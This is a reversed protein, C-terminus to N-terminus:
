RKFERFMALDAHSGEWNTITEDWYAYLKRFEAENRVNHESWLRYVLMPVSFGFVQSIQKRDHPRLFLSPRDNVAEFTSVIKRRFLLIRSPQFIHFPPVQLPEKSDSSCAFQAWRLMACNGGLFNTDAVLSISQFM